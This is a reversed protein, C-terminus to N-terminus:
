GVAVDKKSLAASLKPALAIKQVPDMEIQQKCEKIINECEQRKQTKADIFSKMVPGLKMQVVEYIKDLSCWDNELMQKLFESFICYDGIDNVTYVLKTEKKKKQVVNIKYPIPPFNKM